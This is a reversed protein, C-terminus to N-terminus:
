AVIRITFSYRSVEVTDCYRGVSARYHKANTPLMDRSSVTSLDDCFKMSCPLSPWPDLNRLGVWGMVLWVWGLRVWGGNDTCM